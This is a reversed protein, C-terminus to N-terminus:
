SWGKGFLHASLNGAGSGAEYHLRCYAAATEVEILASGPSGAPEESSAAATAAWSTNDNSVEITLVGVLTGTWDTQFSVRDVGQIDVSGGDVNGSGDEADLYKPNRVVRKSSM